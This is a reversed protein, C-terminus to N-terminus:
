TMIVVFPSFFWPIMEISSCFTNSLAGKMHFASLLTHIFSFIKLMIFDTQSFSMALMMSVWPFVARNEGLISAKVVRDLMKRSNRALAILYCFTLWFKFSTVDNRKTSSLVRYTSFSLSDVLFSSSNICLRLLTAPYLILEWFEMTNRHVLM